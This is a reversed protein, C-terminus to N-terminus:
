LCMVDRVESDRVVFRISRRIWANARAIDPERLMDLGHDAVDRVRQDRGTSAVAEVLETHLAVIQNQIAQTKEAISDVQRQYREADMRGTVYADDARELAPKFDLVQQELETIKAKIAPTKDPIANIMSQLNTEDQLYDIAALYADEIKRATITGGKHSGNAMCRYVERDYRQGKNTKNVSYTYEAVMPRNCVECWVCQSFRHPSGVSRRASRRRNMEALLLKSTEESILAPWRMRAQVYPRLPTNRKNYELIGAYRLSRKIIHQVNDKRWTGGSPSPFSTAQLKDAIARSGDGYQLYREVILVLASQALPDVEVTTEIQNGVITKKEVWGWPVGAPFDGNKIRAQMGRSHRYGFKVVEQQAGVSKLAGILMADHTDIVELTAPPAEMEYTVIGAEHCLEVIAMSLSAKRGLRSRDLYILVDFARGVILDRLSSYAQIQRCADEFLVISRSQGPVELEAVIEGGHQAIHRRAEQKQDGLSMKKAQPLTSVAAWAVFRKARTM